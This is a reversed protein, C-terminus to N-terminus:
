FGSSSQPQKSEIEFGELELNILVWTKQREPESLEFRWRRITEIEEQDSKKEEGDGESKAMRVNISNGEQNVSITVRLAEIKSEQVEDALVSPMYMGFCLVTATIGWWGVTLKM